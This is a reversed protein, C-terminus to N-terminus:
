FNEKPNENIKNDSLYPRQYSILFFELISLGIVLFFVNLWSFLNKALLFLVAVLLFALLFSQRFADRVSRFALEHKLGVFRIIFGIIASTGVISLFLSLYFLLFGLWNTAEPNVTWLVFSFALWCILTTILMIILYSKLTM